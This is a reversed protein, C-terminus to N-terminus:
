KDAPYHISITLLFETKTVQPLKLTLKEEKMTNPVKGRSLKDKGVLLSCIKGRSNIIKKGQIEMGCYHM